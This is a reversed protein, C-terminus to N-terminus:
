KELVVGKSYYTLNEYSEATFIDGLFNYLVYNGTFLIGGETLAEHIKSVLEKKLADPFYILVYRYFIVDLKGFDSYSDILNFRRFNVSNIISPDLDWAANVEKFYAAKYHDNIGRTMSIKDYRGNKAIELVRDSIDTAIIEFDSLKVGSIKNRKLHNDICMAISYAEQGTSAAASWIKIKSKKGSILMKIFKPLLERDFFKWLVADRFWLTENVTIANIVKQAIDPSRISLVKEYFEDFSSMGSNLMLNSLKTEILYYKEPSIVIGSIETIYKSIKEYVRDNGFEQV